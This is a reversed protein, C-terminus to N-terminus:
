TRGRRQPLRAVIEDAIDCPTRGDTVVAFTAVERYLPERDALLREVEAHQQLNTLAPRRERSSEDERLRQLITELRATLWIVPGSNQMATRNRPDLVAGGGAAVVLKDAALLERLADRELARFAPEGQEEFIQRISCGARQEVISDADVWPCALRDALMRAVTSKGTGRYGVLTVAM